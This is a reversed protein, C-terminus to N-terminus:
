FEVCHVPLFIILFLVYRIVGLVGMSCGPHVDHIVWDWVGLSDLGGGSTGFPPAIAGLSGMGLGCSARGPRQVRGLTPARQTSPPPTQGTGDSDLERM